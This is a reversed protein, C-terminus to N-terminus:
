SAFKDPRFQLVDGACMAMPVTYADALCHVGAFAVLPKGKRTIKIVVLWDDPRKKINWGTLTGGTLFAIEQELVLLSSALKM